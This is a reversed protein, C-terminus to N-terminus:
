NSIFGLLCHLIVLLMSIDFLANGRLAKCLTFEEIHSELKILSCYAMLCETIDMVINSLYAKERSSSTKVYHSQVIKKDFLNFYILSYYAMLCETM